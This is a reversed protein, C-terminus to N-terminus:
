RSKGDVMGHEFAYRTLQVRNNLHLKQLINKLHNKVTHESIGFAAAIAKNSDGRAVRELVEIERATLPTMVACDSSPADDRSASGSKAAGAERGSWGGRLKGRMSRSSEGASETGGHRREEANSGMRSDGGGSATFEQLLRFALEKTMPAEDMAVARLYELWASPELNKLLYGQAGRKIAEFLDTIDDSVTVMVIKVAPMRSKIRQTTELGDMGPMRIDMLILEPRLMEALLLAEEGGAAEGVLAFAPDSGVIDRMGERGDPHDDVILVRIPRVADEM